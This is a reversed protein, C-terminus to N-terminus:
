SSSRKRVFLQAVRERAAALLSEYLSDGHADLCSYDFWVGLKSRPDAPVSHHPRENSKSSRNEFCLISGVHGLSLRFM